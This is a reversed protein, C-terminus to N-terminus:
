TPSLTVLIGGARTTWDDGRAVAQAGETVLRQRLGMVPGLVSVLADTPLEEYLTRIAATLAQSAEEATGVTASDGGKGEVIWTIRMARMNCV